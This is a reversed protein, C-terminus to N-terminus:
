LIEAVKKGSLVAGEITAPLGTNTYDGALFVNDYVTNVDPRVGNPVCSFTARKEKVVRHAPLERGQKVGMLKVLQQWVDKAIEEDKKQVLERAASTTTSLIIDDSGKIPKTFLWEFDAHIVGLMEPLEIDKVVEKDVRFHVNVIPEFDVPTQINPLLKGANWPPVAIVLQDNPELEIVEDGLVLARISHSAELTRMASVRRNTQVKVHNAELFEVMPGILADGWNQKPTYPVIGRAGAKVIKRVVQQLIVADAVIPPTNLISVGIPEWFNDYVAGAFHRTVSGRAPRYVGRGLSLMNRLSNGPLAFPAQHLGGIRWNEGNEHDVFMYYSDNCKRFKNVASIKEVIEWLADNCGLVLHNGNDIECGLKPDYFSRCRGGIHPSAEFLQIEVDKHSLYIATSLGAVGAGIIYITPKKM